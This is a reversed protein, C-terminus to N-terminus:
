NFSDNFRNNFRYNFKLVISWNSRMPGYRSTTLLRLKNQCTVVTRCNSKDISYDSQNFATVHWMFNVVGGWWYIRRYVERIDWVPTLATLQAGEWGEPVVSSTLLLTLLYVLVNRSARMIIMTVTALCRNTFYWYFQLQIAIISNDEGGLSIMTNM